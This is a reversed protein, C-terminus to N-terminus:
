GDEEAGTKFIKKMVVHPVHGDMYVEGEAVYGRREYFGAAQCQASLVAESFGLEAARREMRDMALTGLGKGRWPKRVALRGMHMRNQEPYMRGTAIPVGNEYIVVHHSGGDLDDIEGTLAYGQEGCFVEYRILLADRADGTLWRCDLM